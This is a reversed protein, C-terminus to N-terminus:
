ISAGEKARYFGNGVSLLLNKRLGASLGNNVDNEGCDNDVVRRLDNRTFPQNLTFAKRLVRRVKSNNYRDEDLVATLMSGLSSEALRAPAQIVPAAERAARQREMAARRLHTESMVETAVPACDANTPAENFFIKNNVGFNPFPHDNHAPAFNQSYTKILGVIEEIWMGKRGKAQALLLMRVLSGLAKATALESGRSQIISLLEADSLQWAVKQEKNLLDQRAGGTM